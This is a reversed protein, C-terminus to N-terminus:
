GFRGINGDGIKAVLCLDCGLLRSQEVRFGFVPEDQDVGGIESAELLITKMLGEPYRVSCAAGAFPACVPSSAGNVRRAIVEKM